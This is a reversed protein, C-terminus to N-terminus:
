KLIRVVLSNKRGERELKRLHETKAKFNLETAGIRAFPIFELSSYPAARLRLARRTRRRFGPQRNVAPEVHSTSVSIVRLARRELLLEAASHKQQFPPGLMKIALPTKMKIKRIIPENM